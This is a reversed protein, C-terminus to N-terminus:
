PRVPITREEPGFTNGEFVGVFEYDTGVYLETKFQVNTIKGTTSGGQRTLTATSSIDGLSFPYSFGPGLQKAYIFISPLSSFYLGQAPDPCRPAVNVTITPPMPNLEVIFSTDGNNYKTYDASGGVGARVMVSRASFNNDALFSPVDDFEVQTPMVPPALQSASLGPVSITRFYGAQWVTVELPGVYTRGRNDRVVTVTVPQAEGETVAVWWGATLSPRELQLYLAPSGTPIAVVTFVGDRVWSFSTNDFRYAPVTEGVSFGVGTAPNRPYPNAPSSLEIYFRVQEPAPASITAPM